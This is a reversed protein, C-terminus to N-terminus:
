DENEKGSGEFERQRSSVGGSVKSEKDDESNRGDNEPLGSERRLSSGYKVAVDDKLNSGEPIVYPHYQM